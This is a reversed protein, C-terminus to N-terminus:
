VCLGYTSSLETAIEDLKLGKVHLFETVDPQELETSTTSKQKQHNIDGAIGAMKDRPFGM